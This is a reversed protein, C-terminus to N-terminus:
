GRRTAGEDVPARGCPADAVTSSRMPAGGGDDGGGDRVRVVHLTSLQHLSDCAM